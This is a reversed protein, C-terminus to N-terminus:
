EHTRPHPGQGLGPMSDFDERSALVVLHALRAHSDRPHPSHSQRLEEVLPPGGLRQGVARTTPSRPTLGQAKRCTQCGLHRLPRSPPVRHFAM